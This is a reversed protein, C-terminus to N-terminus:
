EGDLSLLGHDAKFQLIRGVTEDLWQLSLTGDEVAATVAEFAGALDCPMLLIDCGAELAAVTAEASTYGDTIAGMELSDTIVLGQFGLEGKLIDTVIQRSLTAPTMDQTVSPLAIHGVMVFDSSQAELFPLWECAMMEEATKYSVAIGSHSDEATDGHGPFHKFVPIIGQSRLGDAMAGALQAAQIPDQSFARTGIIPNSSNTNVDAVPAFDMNFGYEALYAGITSGMEQVADAGQAGVAAASEYRPLAFASNRALRSVLGGEEDVALFLPIASADQLAQNLATIQAPDSINKGFMAIGGVPYQTLMEAIADTMQTVGESNPDSIQTNTQAPDLADPRVIFLQGVKEELTMGSLLRELPSPPQTETAQTPAATQATAATSSPQSQAPEDQCGALVIALLLGPLLSKRLIM